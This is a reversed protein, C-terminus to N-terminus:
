GTARQLEVRSDVDVPDTAADDANAVVAVVAVDFGSDAVAAAGVVVVDGDGGDVTAVVAGGVVGPAKTMCM